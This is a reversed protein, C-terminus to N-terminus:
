RERGAGDEAQGATSWRDLHSAVGTIKIGYNGQVTVVEGHAVVRGNVMMEVPDNLGRDFEIVSGSALAMVEGLAMSTGGFRLTVPLEIDLLVDLSANTDRSM